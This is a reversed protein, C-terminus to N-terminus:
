NMNIETENFLHGELGVVVSVHKATRERLVNFRTVSGFWGNPMMTEDFLVIM